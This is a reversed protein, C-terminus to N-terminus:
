MLKIQVTPKDLEKIQEKIRVEKKVPLVYAGLKSDPFVSTNWTTQGITVSVRVSGWGRRIGMSFFRVEDSIDNPLTIFYWAAKGQYKWIASCFEFSISEM